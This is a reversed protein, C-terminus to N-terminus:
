TARNQNRPCSHVEKELNIPSNGMLLNPVFNRIGILFYLVRGNFLEKIEICYKLLYFKLSFMTRKRSRKNNTATFHATTNKFIDSINTIEDLYRM